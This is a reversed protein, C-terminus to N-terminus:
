LYEWEAEYDDDDGDRGRFEWEFSLSPLINKRFFVNLVEAATYGPGDETSFEFRLTDPGWDDTYCDHPTDLGHYKDRWQWLNMDVGHLAQSRLLLKGEELATRRWNMLFDVAADSSEIKNNDTNEKIWIRERDNLYYHFPWSGRGQFFSESRTLAELGITADRVNGGFLGAPPALFGDLSFDCGDGDESDFALKKLRSIDVHSGNITLIHQTSM